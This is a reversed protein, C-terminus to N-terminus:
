LALHRQSDRFLWSYQQAAPFCKPSFRLFNRHRCQHRRGHSESGNCATPLPATLTWVAIEFNGTAGQTNQFLRYDHISIRLFGALDDTPGPMTQERKVHHIENLFADGKTANVAGGDGCAREWGREPLAVHKRGTDVREEVIYGAPLRCRSERAQIRTWEQTIWLDSLCIMDMQITNDRRRVVRATGEVCSV